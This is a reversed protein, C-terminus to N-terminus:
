NMSLCTSDSIHLLAFSRLYFNSIFVYRQDGAMLTRRARSRGPLDMTTGLAAHRLLARALAGSSPPPPHGWRLRRAPFAYRAALDARTSWPLWMKEARCHVHSQSCRRAERQIEGMRRGHHGVCAFSGPPDASLRNNHKRESRLYVVLRADQHSSRSRPSGREREGM